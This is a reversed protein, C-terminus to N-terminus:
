CALRGLTYQIDPRTVHLYNLKGYWKRYDKNRMEAEEEGSRTRLNDFDIQNTPDKWPTFQFKEVGHEKEFTKVLDALYGAQGLTVENESHKYRVGSFTNGFPKIKIKVEKGLEELIRDLEPETPVQDM